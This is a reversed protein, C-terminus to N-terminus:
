NRVKASNPQKLNVPQLNCEFDLNESTNECISATM